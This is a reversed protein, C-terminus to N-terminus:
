LFFVYVEGCIIMDKAQPFDDPGWKCIHGEHDDPLYEGHKSHGPDIPTSVVLLKTTVSQLKEIVLKGIDKTMHEIVDCFITVDYKRFIPIVSIDGIYLTNYIFQHIPTIYRSDIDIGDIVCEWKDKYYRRWWIDTYERVLHGYKGFGFGVDLVSKPQLSIIRNIIPSISLPESTPM